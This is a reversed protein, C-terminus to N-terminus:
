RVDRDGPEGEVRATPLAYLRPRVLLEKDRVEVIVYGIQPLLSTVLKHAYSTKLQWSPTVVVHLWPTTDVHVYRHRHSRVVLRVDPMHQGYTRYLEVLQILMDRLPVTAEYLPVSSRGVHHAFHATIKDGLDLYLEWRSYQGTASSCEAGLERALLEVHESSRGEHWESGRVVFLRQTMKRLPKLLELAAACQASVTSCVLQGDRANVGQIVDGNLVVVSPRLRRIEDLADQWCKYLWTQYVNAEYVGGDEIAYRPPWLGVTSGVHLDSLVVVFRSRAM